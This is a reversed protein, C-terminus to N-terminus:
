SAIKEELNSKVEIELTQMSSLGDKQTTQVAVMYKGPAFNYTLEAQQKLMEQPRFAKDPQYDFDWSYFAINQQDDVKLEFQVEQQENDSAQITYQIEPKVPVPTLDDLTVLKLRINEYTNLRQVEEIAYKSFRDGVLVGHYLHEPHNEYFWKKRFPQIHHKVMHDIASLGLNNGLRIIISADNLLQPEFQEKIWKEFQGAESHLRTHPEYQYIRLSFDQSSEKNLLYESQKINDVLTDTGIWFRKYQDALRLLRGNKVNISLLTDGENSAYQIIRRLLHHPNKSQYTFGKQPANFPSVQCLRNTQDKPAIYYKKFTIPDDNNTPINLLGLNEWETLTEEPFAWGSTPAEHGKYSYFFGDAHVSNLSDLRYRGKNDEYRYIQNLYHENYPYNCTYQESRAYYLITTYQLSTHVSLNGANQTPKWKIEGKYHAEEFHNPLATNVAWDKLSSPINIFVSATGKLLPLTHKITNKLWKRYDKAQKNSSTVTAPDVIHPPLDIYVLDISQSELVALVNQTDGLILQNM